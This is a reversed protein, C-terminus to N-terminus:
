QQKMLAYRGKLGTLRQQQKKRNANPLSDYLERAAIDEEKNHREHKLKKEVGKLAFVYTDKRLDHDPPLYRRNSVHIPKHLCTNFPAVDLCVICRRASMQVALHMVKCFAPFDCMHHLIRAKFRMPAQQYANYVEANTISLLEDVVLEIYPDLSVPEHNGNGPIIGVLMMPGLTTRYEPPLSLWTVVMPWMSRQLAPNKNPHMGDTFLGLPIGGDGYGALLGDDQFWAQYETGDKFDAIESNLELAGAQVLKALNTEGFWRALRPGIPMYVFRKRRETSSPTVKRPEGCVPCATQQSYDPGNWYRKYILCDSPCVEYRQLPFMYPELLKM